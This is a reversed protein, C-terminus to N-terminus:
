LFYRLHGQGHGMQGVEQNKLELSLIHVYIKIPFAKLINKDLHHESNIALNM